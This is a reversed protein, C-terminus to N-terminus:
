GLLFLPRSQRRALQLMQVHKACGYGNITVWSVLKRVDIFFFFILLTRPRKLDFEWM